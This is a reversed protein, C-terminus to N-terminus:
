KPSHALNSELGAQVLCQTKIINTESTLFQTEKVLNCRRIGPIGWGALHFGNNM